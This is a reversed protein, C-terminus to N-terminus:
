HHPRPGRKDVLLPRAFSFGILSAIAAIALHLHSKLNALEVLQVHRTFSIPQQTIHDM